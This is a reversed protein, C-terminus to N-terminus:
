FMYFMRVFVTSGTYPRNGYGTGIFGLWDLRPTSTAAGLDPRPLTQPGASNITAWDAIDFKEYWYTLGLGVKKSANYKLDVTFHHWTSTVNPLQTYCSTLGAACPRSDGVTLITATQMANIRPGGHVFGQDSDSYEYTTRIETKKVVDILNLYATATKVTEDNTLNWDRNPDNWSEYAGPVGSFPNATRSTQFADWNEYGFDGGLNVRASPVYSVGVTYAKNKNSMLGFKQTADATKYDDKGYVYSLNFGLSSTPTIDAMLTMRDSQRAAEDYFRAAPQMAMEVIIEDDFGITERNTRAYQARLAVYQNGLTDWSVRTTKDKIGLTARDLHELKDEGYAVKLASNPIGTFKASVETSNRDVSWPESEGGTEEPVADMRVYEVAHFPRRFDSRGNYRYRAALTFEKHPRSSINMTATQYNVHLEATDRPLSRLEPFTSYVTPNAIVPNTTWGILAADQKNAGASFSANATTNAPLKVMGMWSFTSLSNSPPMASLGDNPGNGNSYGSPDYCTGPAQGAIGARCFDTARWPNDWRLTPINQDFKSHEYNARFMGQHSAWEVGASVSTARNDVVLPVEQLNNFAFGYGWPMNGSKKYTDLGLTFDLNDTASIRAEGRITDRRGQMDFPKAITNYVSGSLLQAVTQPVGVATGAEVRARLAPDLSCDGATCNYPTKTYYGYNIPTQDFFLSAKLRRSSFNMTYRQDRYGINTAKLDFAWKETQKSYLLNANLGDRLDRYREYRAEDGTTTTLRGGIDLTGNSPTPTPQPQAQAWAVTTTALLLAAAGITLIKNRM